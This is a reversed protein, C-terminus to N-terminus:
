LRVKRGSRTLYHTFSEEPCNAAAYRLSAIAERRSRYGCGRADLYPLSDDCIYFSGTPESFIRAISHTHNKM